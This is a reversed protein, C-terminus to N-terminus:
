TDRRAEEGYRAEMERRFEEAQPGILPQKAPSEAGTLHLTAPVGFDAALLREELTEVAAQDVGKVLVAVDMLAVDKIRQWLGKRGAFSRDEERREIRQSM